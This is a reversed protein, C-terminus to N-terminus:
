QHYAVTRAEHSVLLALPEHIWHKEEPLQEVPSALQPEIFRLRAAVRFVLSQKYVFGPRHIRRVYQFVKSNQWPVAM